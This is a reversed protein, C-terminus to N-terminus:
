TWRTFMETFCLVVLFLHCHMAMVGYSLLTSTRDNMLIVKGGVTRPSNKGHLVTIYPIGPRPYNRSLM